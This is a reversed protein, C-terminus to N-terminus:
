APLAPQNASEPPTPQPTRNRQFSPSPCSRPAAPAPMAASMATGRRPSGATRSWSAPGTRGGGSPRCVSRGPGAAGPPADSEFDSQLWTHRGAASPAEARGAQRRAVATDGVQQVALVCQESDRQCEVGAQPPQRCFLSPDDQRPRTAASRPDRLRTPGAPSCKRRPEAPGCGASWNRSRRPATEQFPLRGTLFEYLMVGLTYIDSRPCVKEQEGLIQEPSMYAPAGLAAGSQTTRPGEADRRALGFDTVHPRRREDLMVKGPKLDPHVVGSDQAHAMADALTGILRVSKRVPQPGSLMDKLSQGPRHAMTLFLRRTGDFVVQEGADYVPCVNPRQLTAAARSERLFREVLEPDAAAASPVKLAVDRDLQAGRVLSVAGM